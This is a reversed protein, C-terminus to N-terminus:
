SHGVATHVVIMDREVASGHLSERWKGNQARGHIRIRGAPKPAADEVQLSAANLVEGLDHLASQTAVECFITTGDVM